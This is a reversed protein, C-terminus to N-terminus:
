SMEQQNPQSVKKLSPELEKYRRRYEKKGYLGKFRSIIYRIDGEKEVLKQHHSRCQLPDRHGIFRSM